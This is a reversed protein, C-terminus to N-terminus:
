VMIVVIRIRIRIRIIILTFILVSPSFGNNSNYAMSSMTSNFSNFSNVNGCSMNGGSNGSTFGGSSSNMMNSPVHSMSQGNNGHGNSMDMLFSSSSTSYFPPQPQPQLGQSPPQNPLQQSSVGTRMMANPHSLQSQASINQSSIQAQSPTQSSAQPPISSNPNQSQSIPPIFYTQNQPHGQPGQPGQLGQLGQSGQQQQSPQQQQQQQQSQSPAQQYISYNGMAYPYYNNANSNMMSVPYPYMNYLGDSGMNQNPQNVSGNMNNLELPSPNNNSNPNMTNMNNGMGISNSNANNNNNANQNLLVNMNNPMPGSHQLNMNNRQMPQNMPVSIMSISQINNRDQQNNSFGLM